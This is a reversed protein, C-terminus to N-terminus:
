RQRERSLQGAYGNLIVIAKQVRTGVALEREGEFSAIPSESFSRIEEDVNSGNTHMAEVQRTLAMWFTKALVLLDM